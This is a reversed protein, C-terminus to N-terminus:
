KRLKVQCVCLTWELLTKTHSALSPHESNLSQAPVHNLTIRWSASNPIQDTHGTTDEKILHPWLLIVVEFVPQSCFIMLIAILTSNGMDEPVSSVTVIAVPQRWRQMTKSRKMSSTTPEWKHYSQINSKLSVNQKDLTWTLNELFYASIPSLQHSCGTDYWRFHQKGRLLYFVAFTPM